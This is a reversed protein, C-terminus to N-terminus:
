QRPIKKVEEKDLASRVRRRIVSLDLGSGEERKAPVKPFIVKRPM